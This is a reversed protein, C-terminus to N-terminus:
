RGWGRRLVGGRPQSTDVLIGAIDLVPPTTSM